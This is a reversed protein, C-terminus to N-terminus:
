YNEKVFDAMLLVNSGAKAQNIYKSQKIETTAIRVCGELHEDTLRTRSRSRVNKMLSYLQGCRYNSGFVSPVLLVDKRIDPFYKEDCLIICYQLLSRPGYL